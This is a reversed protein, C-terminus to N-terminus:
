SVITSANSINSDVSSRRQNDTEYTEQLEILHSGGPTGNNGLIFARNRFTELETFVIEKNLFDFNEYWETM